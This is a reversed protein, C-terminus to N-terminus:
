FTNSILFNCLHGLEAGREDWPHLSMVPSVCPLLSTTVKLSSVLMATYPLLHHRNVRTAWCCTAPQAYHNQAALLRTIWVLGPVPSEHGFQVRAPGLPGSAASQDVETQSLRKGSCCQEVFSASQSLRPVFCPSPLLCPPLSGPHFAPKTCNVRCQVTM